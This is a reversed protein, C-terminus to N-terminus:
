VNNHLTETPFTSAYGTSEGTGGGACRAPRAGINDNTEKM